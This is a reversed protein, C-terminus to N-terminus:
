EEIQEEDSEEIRDKFFIEDNMFEGKSRLVSKPIREYFKSIEIQEKNEHIEELNDTQSEFEQLKNHLEEKQKAAIQNARKSIIVLSKYINGTKDSLDSMNLTEIFPSIQEKVVKNDEMNDEQEVM